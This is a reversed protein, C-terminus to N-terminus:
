VAHVILSDFGGEITAGVLSGDPASVAPSVRCRTFIIYESVNGGGGPHVEIMLTINQGMAEGIASYVTHVKGLTLTTDGRVRVTAAVPDFNNPVPQRTHPNGYDWSTIYLWTTFQDPDPVAWIEFYDNLTGGVCTVSLINAWGDDGSVLHGTDFTSGSPVLISGNKPGSGQDQGNVTFTVDAGGVVEKALIFLYYNSNGAPIADGSATFECAGSGTVVIEGMLIAELASYKVIGEPQSRPADLLGAQAAVTKYPM